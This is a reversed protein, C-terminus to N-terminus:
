RGFTNQFSGLAGPVLVFILAAILSLLLALSGLVIGAIAAGRGPQAPNQRIQSLAIAGLVIAVPSLIQCCAFSFIGLGLAWQAMPNTAAPAPAAHIAIPPPPPPLLAAFEPVDRVLMWIAGGEPQIKSAGNLRGEQIWQRVHEASVPGYEKQDAGIIKYM